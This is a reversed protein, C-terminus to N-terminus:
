YRGYKLGAKIFSLYNDQMQEDIYEEYPGATPSLIFRGSKGEEMMDSVLSEVQGPTKHALDDYQINGILVMNGLVERAQSITCDGIPPAEITHLGDPNIFRIGELVNFLNGHYHVISKKGYARILDVLGKVYRASLENFKSPSVLPPGAFEAGIIFFVEGIDNELLYKTYEMVRDYMIDTFAILKDYDTVTAMSFDGASMIGYLPGLPDTLNVMMLGRDGLEEKEKIYSTLDPKPAKYPIETISKLDTIDDVLHKVKTGDSGRFIFKNLRIDKYEVVYESFTDAGENREHWYTKIDPNSNYCFGSDYSRRDFTDCYKEINDTIKKYCPLNYVDVYSGYRHYPFLLWIPVRDIEKNDFLRALRDRSSLQNM